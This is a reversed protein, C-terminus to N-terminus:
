SDELVQGTALYNADGAVLVSYAKGAQFTFVRDYLVSSDAVRKVRLSSTGAPIVVYKSASGFATGTTLTEAGAQAIVQAAGVAGHIVRVAVTGASLAPLTDDISATRLGFNNYDGYLLVSQVEDPSLNITVSEVQEDTNARKLVISQPGRADVWSSARAFRARGRAATEAGLFIDVPALDINAHLIRFGTSPRARQEDSSGGGGGGGGGGCAVLTMTSVCLTFLLKTYSKM